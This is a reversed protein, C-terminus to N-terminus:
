SACPIVAELRTGGGAPSALELRGDLAALRDRLGQLGTGRVPDAGGVGDDSVAVRVHGDVQEVSVSANAARAYKAVNTLGEAVVFYAAAEVNTPLRGSPMEVVDVPLPTRSVLADVAADLGRDTLVAPHIGRALERLEELAVRLEDGADSLLERARLPDGELKAAALKLQLSLAVLRQQAGDHLDRELRRREALGVTVLNARSAQLEQVRARLEADLRENDIALAAASAAQRILEPEDCLAVDHSLVAVTRGEREVETAARGGGHEPPEAREGSGDLWRDADLPYLVRLTPDALADALADRVSADRRPHNLREVLLGMAGARFWRSRGLGVLFAYPLAVFCLLGPSAFVESTWGPAGALRLALSISVLVILAIGPFLVPALSRRQPPTASRWRRILLRTVGVALILALVTVVELIADGTRPAHWIAFVDRPAPGDADSQDADVVALAVNSVILLLYLGAVFRREARDRLRGSPFALLMHVTTALFIGGFLLGISYLLPKDSSAPASLVYAFGVATMLAGFPNEPRRGWAYL